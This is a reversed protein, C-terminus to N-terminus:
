NELLAPHLIMQYKENASIAETTIGIIPERVVIREGARNLEMREIAYAELIGKNKGVSHFPVARFSQPLLAGTYPLVAKKEVLSVPKQSIPEVLSNGSDVLARVRCCQEGSFFLKVEVFEQAYLGRWREYAYKTLMTCLVALSALSLMTLSKWRFVEEMLELSGGLVLAAM